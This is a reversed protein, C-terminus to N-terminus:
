KSLMVEPKHPQFDYKNQKLKRDAINTNAAYM